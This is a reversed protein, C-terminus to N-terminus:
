VTREVLSINVILVRSQVALSTCVFFSTNISDVSLTLWWRAGAWVSRGCLGHVEFKYWEEFGCKEVVMAAISAARAANSDSEMHVGEVIGGSGHNRSRQNAAASTCLWPQAFMSAMTARDSQVSKVGLVCAICAM